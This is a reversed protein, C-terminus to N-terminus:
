LEQQLEQMHTKKAYHYKNM